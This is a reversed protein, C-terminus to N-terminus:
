PGAAFGDETGAQVKYQGTRTTGSRYNYLEIVRTLETLNMRGDRNTDGSHYRTFSVIASTTRTPDPAFGDETATTAIAYCGTRTTGNRTNYLEIARTLETLNIRGNGDTDASHLPAANIVLPDPQALVRVAEGSWTLTAIAAISLPQQGSSPAKLSYTFTAPSVPSPAWGFELLTGTGVAPVLGGTTGGFSVLTWGTPLPVEWRIGTPAGSYTFTNTVTVTSGPIYGAGAYSHTASLTPAGATVTLTGSQKALTYNAAEGGTLTIAYTGVASDTTAATAITPETIVAKTEGNVFGTYAITLLPNAAGQVKTKDEAKATLAAKTVSGIAGTASPPLQYNGLTTGTGAAFDGVALAVTVTKAAGVGAADYVGSTKTITVAETGFAGMLQYNGAALTAVATGDYVKTVAGQLGVTLPRKSVTLVVSATTGAYNVTDTPTFTATLTHEGAALVTGLAPSYNFSGAVNTTANLQTASLTTGYTIAAPNGWTIVPVSKATVTLTGNQKTLAYNTAEGGTLTIAYTGVASDATATTAITPETIVAKTEGNVFGEYAITLVPNAAGQVKTKDQARATLAAKTVSGIAGTASPPLQYNGLTTGTGAAFDGAALAVTVTKGTGAGAADYVGSTKAITVTETGFAGTVQYNGAALTAAATGDYVKTVAGQLGVTLPRKNVTLAVSATTGVYNVTDTPTFTATLTHEGAGLVTGLAPSYSFSGAVSATANLQTESLAAGYTVAAPTTWTIVPVSKATVTLTGNQKTLVYNAVEGGTLTIAYTGVASDTTATTAITPETIVAKTEGNVFGTYAITLVPNAAGQVKTKDEARATLAAKTVTGVAGAASPPLQYNGLTTGTGAAFDGAALAVTVTKGTGVGAADYVGSTKTITVAETGFAGTVQYNGAALTAAATGDYVKTVAGQLGVTLPRKSVALVVSATTGAYNVADAPTFTATLTHEGAGLVTALAPSYSFNGSVSATANLQTASLATGYTVAAPTAWTIVPVSKAVTVSGDALSTIIAGDNLRAETIRLPSAQGARGVVEFEVVVLTGEGATTAGALSLKVQGAVAAGAQLSWGGALTGVTASRFGLVDASFTLSIDAAVLGRVGRLGVPVRIVDAAYPALTPLSLSAGTDVYTFANPLTDSEGGLGQVTVAVRSPLGAPVKCTIQTANVVVVETAVGAGIFVKTGARFNGGTITVSTGGAIGSEAPAIATVRPRETVVVVYPQEPRGAYAITSGDTATLYYELGPVAVQSEELSTVWRNGTTKALAKSQFTAQGGVTRFHLLAGTVEVNDTIDASFPLAVGPDAAAVPVHVLVPPVTDLPLGSVTASPPSESDDTRVLTLRYFYPQGMTVNLDTFTRTGGPIISSNLRGFTGTESTARYLNYGAPADAGRGDLEIRDAAGRRGRQAGARGAGSGRHAVGAADPL